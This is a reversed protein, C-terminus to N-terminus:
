GVQEMIAKLRGTESETTRLVPKKCCDKIRVGRLLMAKKLTGVFFPNIDYIGMLLDVKKQLAFATDWDKRNVAEQWSVLLEPYVNSLASDDM